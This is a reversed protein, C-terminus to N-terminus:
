NQELKEIVERAKMLERLLVKIKGETLLVTRKMVEDKRQNSTEIEIKVIKESEGGAEGVEKDLKWNISKLCSLRLSEKRVAEILKERNDRYLRSLIGAHEKPTGLQLLEYQLSSHDVKGRSVGVLIWSISSLVAAVSEESLKTELSLSSLSPHHNYSLPQTVAEQALQKFKISSIKAVTAIEALIWDPCDLGGCFKFKMIAKKSSFNTSGM